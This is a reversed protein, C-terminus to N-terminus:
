GGPTNERSAAYVASLKDLREGFESLSWKPNISLRHLAYRNARADLSGNDVAFGVEYHESVIDMIQRNYAGYPYAFARLRMYLHDELVSKNVSVATRMEHLNLRTMCLHEHTHGGIDCGSELWYRLEQWNLHTVDYCAKPNWRNSQGVYASIVFLTATMERTRLYPLAVYLTDVYGDDFTILVPRPPAQEKGGLIDLVQALTLASYGNDGLYRLQDNFAEESIANKDCISRNIIHYVLTPFM